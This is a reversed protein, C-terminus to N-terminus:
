YIEEEAIAGLYRAGPLYGMGSGLYRAGPLYGVPRNTLPPVTDQNSPAPATAVDESKFYRGYEPIMSTVNKEAFKRAENALAAAGVLTALQKFRPAFFGAAVPLAVATLVKVGMKENATTTKVLKEAVMNGIFNNALQGGTITLADKAMRTVDGIVNGVPPNRRIRHGYRRLRRHYRRRRPNAMMTVSPPPNRRARRHRRSRRRGGGFYQRQLASMKRRRRGRRRPNLVLIEDTEM